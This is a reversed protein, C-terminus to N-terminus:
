GNGTFKNEHLRFTLKEKIKEKKPFEESVGTSRDWIIGPWAQPREMWGRKKM